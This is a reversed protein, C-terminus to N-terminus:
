ENDDMEPVDYLDELRLVGGLLPLGGRRRTTLKWGRPGRHHHEVLHTPQDILLVDTLSEIQMYLLLKSGRDYKRTSNSFVEFLLVPNLLSMRDKASIEWRGCAVGGDAYTYFKKPRAVHIRQDATFVQCGTGRILARLDGIVNGCIANHRARAGAMAYVQGDLFEHKIESDNEVLLYEEETWTVEHALAASM